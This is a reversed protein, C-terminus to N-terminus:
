VKIERESYKMIREIYKEHHNKFAALLGKANLVPEHPSYPLETNLLNTMRGGVARLIADGACIDWKKIATTHLYATANGSIVQLVKYGAGAATIIKTNEGFVAKSYNKVEGAHSRSVIVTVGRDSSEEKVRQLDESVAQGTWAWTTKQTFPNHIVGITPKGKIAICVMTTVYEFLRETYEQTADLPDIWVTVDDSDVTEDPVTLTERLVTPDLDFLKVDPCTMKSSDEESIIKLRPFIHHLGFQMVCHSKFDAETVPNNAGEATKGKSKVHFDASKSVAVVELGGKEAAQIAGILLKRLNVVNPDRAIYEGPDTNGILVYYTLFFLATFLILLGCKNIRISGGFNM